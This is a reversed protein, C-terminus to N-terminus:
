GFLPAGGPPEIGGCEGLCCLESQAISGPIRDYTRSVVCHIDHQALRKRNVLADAGLKTGLSEVNRVSRRQHRRVCAEPSCSETRDRTGIVWTHKLEYHLHQELQAPRRAQDTTM